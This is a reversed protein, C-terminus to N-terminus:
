LTVVTNIATVNDSSYTVKIYVTTVNNHFYIVGAQHKVYDYCLSVAESLGASIKKARYEIEKKM